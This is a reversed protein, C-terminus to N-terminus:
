PIRVLNFTYTCWTKPLYFNLQTDRDHRTQKGKRRGDQKGNRHEGVLYNLLTFTIFTWKCLKCVNILYSHVKLESIYSIMAIFM